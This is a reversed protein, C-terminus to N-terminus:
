EGTERALAATLEETKMDAVDGSTMVVLRRDHEIEPEYVLVRGEDTASLGAVYGYRLGRFGPVEQQGGSLAGEVDLSPPYAGDHRAAYVLLAKAVQEIGTRRQEILDDDSAAPGQDTEKLQYTFGNKVWAGPTMLERAGSIMTLVVVFMLGWLVTGGLATRYRMRPLRPFDKRFVNWLVQVALASLLVGVLFFSIAQLRHETTDTLRRVMEYDSPLPAPM